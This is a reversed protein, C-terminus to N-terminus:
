TTTTAPRPSAAPVTSGSTAATDRADPFFAYATNAPAAADASNAFRLIGGAAGDGAHAVDLGTFGEVSFGAHAARQTVADANLVAHM